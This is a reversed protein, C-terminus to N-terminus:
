FILGQDRSLRLFWYFCRLSHFQSPALASVNFNTYYPSNEQDKGDSTCDCSRQHFLSRQFVLFFLLATFCDHLLYFRSDTDRCQSSLSMKPVRAIFHLKQLTKSTLESNFLVGITKSTTKEVQEFM